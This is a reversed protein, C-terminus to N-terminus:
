RRRAASQLELIHGAPRDSPRTPRVDSPSVGRPCAREFVIAEPGPTVFDMRVSLVGGGRLLKRGSECEAM